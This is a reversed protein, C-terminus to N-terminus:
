IGYFNSRDKFAQKGGEMVNSIAEVIDKENLEGASRIFGRRGDSELHAVIDASGLVPLNANHTTVIIQGKDKRRKISKILTDVIFANDIHDEPQDIILITDQHELIIPLIVTCRQGTSLQSFDKWETNDYLCFYIKDELLVTSLEPISNKLSGILSIARNKSVGVFSIFDEIKNNEIINILERPPVAEAITSVIDNYQIGSGKLGKILISIYNDIQSSFEINISIKPALKETIQVCVNERLSSRKSRINELEELLSDREKQLNRIKNDNDEVQDELKELINIENKLNQIKRSIDGFGDKLSDVERRLEQGERKINTIKLEIEQKREKSTILSNQYENVLISMKEILISKEEIINDIPNADKERWQLTEPINSIQEEMKHLWETEEDHFKNIYNLKYMENTYLETLSNLHLSKEAIEDSFDSFYRLQSELGELNERMSSLPLLKEEYNDTEERILLLERSVSNIKTIKNIEREEFTNINEIFKDIINLRGGALLGINEIETQSFILPIKINSPLGSIYDSEASRTIIIVDENNTLTLIVQGDKLVSVAHNLSKITSDNTYGKIDLAFRILEIFTSKGTGRAGIISNLGNKLKLDFGDLFGGEIQVRQIYFNSM